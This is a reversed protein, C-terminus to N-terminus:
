RDDGDIYLAEIKCGWMIVREVLHLAVLAEGCVGNGMWRGIWGGIWCCVGLFGSAVSDEPTKWRLAQASEEGRFCRLYNLVLFFVFTDIYM